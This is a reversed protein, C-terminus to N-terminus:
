EISRYGMQNAKDPRLKDEIGRAPRCKSSLERLRHIRNTASYRNLM